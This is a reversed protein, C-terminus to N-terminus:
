HEKRKYFVQEFLKRQLTLLIKSSSVGTLEQDPYGDLTSCGFLLSARRHFSTPERILFMVM